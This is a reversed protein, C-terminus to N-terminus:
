DSSRRYIWSNKAGRSMGGMELWAEKGFGRYKLSAERGESVTPSITEWRSRISTKSRKPTRSEDLTDEEGSSRQQAATAYINAQKEIAENTVALLRSVEDGTLEFIEEPRGPLDESYGYCTAGLRECRLCYPM